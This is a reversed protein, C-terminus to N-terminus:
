IRGGRGNKLFPREALYDFPKRKELYLTVDSLTRNSSVCELIERRVAFNSGQWIDAMNQSFDFISLAMEGYSPDFEKADDLQAEVEEAERKFEASKTQFADEEILGSLYGNLLREQMNALTTKRKALAKHWQGRAYSADDFAAALADRFWDAIEPSPIRISDLEALIATEVDGERWRVKPHGDGQHNNGCKYYVHVNRSGNALKRRIQEGTIAHECVACRLICGSLMIDPNGTRRNKGKLINKCADFTRRDILLKYKGQYTKGNRELEGVYFRNNLIYSLAARRFRPQSPQYIFGEAALKEELSKFTYKGTSYLEFIRIAAKYKEPHPIVPEDKNSVNLYGFPAHGPPWGQKVREDLGKLVESRLNESYYQAVSAMM